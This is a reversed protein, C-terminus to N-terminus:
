GKSNGGNDRHASIGWSLKTRLIEFYSHTESRAYTVVHRSPKVVVVDLPELGFISQGDAAIMVREEPLLNGRDVRLEMGSPLILPRVTLSHPCIPTLLMVPLEPHVISGGAALSYATSGTPTAVILGDARLLMIEEGSAKIELPVIRGDVAKQIVVDNVARSFFVEEHNRLVATEITTRVGLRARRNLVAECTDIVEHPAIETLFGLTGFNVGIFVPEPSPASRAARLFTGDGGLTVVLSAGLLLDTLSEAVVVHGALDSRLSDSKSQSGGGRLNTAPRGAGEESGGGPIGKRDGGPIAALDWLVALESDREIKLRHGRNKAWELLEGGILQIESLNPRVVLSIDAM